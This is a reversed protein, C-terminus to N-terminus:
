TTPSARKRREIGALLRQLLAVQRGKKGGTPAQAEPVASQLPEPRATESMAAIPEDVEPVISPVALAIPEPEVTRTEAQAVSPAVSENAWAPPKLSADEAPSGRAMSPASLAEDELVLVDDSESILEIEDTLIPVDSSDVTAPNSASSLEQEVETPSIVEARESLHDRLRRAVDLATERLEQNEPDRVIAERLLSLGEALRGSQIYTHAFRLPAARIRDEAALRERLLTEVQEIRDALTPDGPRQFSLSLLARHATVLDGASLASLAQSELTREDEM